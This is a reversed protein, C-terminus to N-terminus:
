YRDPGFSIGFGGYAGVYMTMNPGPHVDQFPRASSSQTRYPSFSEAVSPSHDAIYAQQAATGSNAWPNKIPGSPQSYFAQEKALSAKKEQIRMVAVSLQAANMTGYHPLKKLLEERKKPAYQALDRAVWALSDQATQTSLIQLRAEMDDLMLNLENASAKAIKADTDAKIREVEKKDYFPQATLWENIGFMARQWRQSNLIEARKAAESAPAAATRAAPAKPAAQQAAATLAGTIAICLVGAIIQCTGMRM